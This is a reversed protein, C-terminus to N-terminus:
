PRPRRHHLQGELRDAFAHRHHTDMASLHEILLTQGAMARREFLRHQEAMADRLADADFPEARLATLVATFSAGAHRRDPRRDRERRLRAGLARRDAPDLAATYPGTASELRAPGRDGPLMHLGMGIGLGIVALNLALSAILTARLWLPVKPSTESM